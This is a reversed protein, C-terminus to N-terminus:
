VCRAIVDEDAVVSQALNRVDEDARSAAIDTRVIVAPETESEKAFADNGSIEM